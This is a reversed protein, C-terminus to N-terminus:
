KSDNKKDCNLHSLLNTPNDMSESKTIKVKNRREEKDLTMAGGNANREITM